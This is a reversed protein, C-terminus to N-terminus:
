GLGAYAWQIVCCTDSLGAGAGGSVAATSIHSIGQNTGCSVQQRQVLALSAHSPRVREEHGARGTFCSRSQACVLM